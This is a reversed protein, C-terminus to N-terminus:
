TSSGPPIIPLQQAGKLLATFVNLILELYGKLLSSRTIVLRHTLKGKKAKLPIIKIDTRAAVYKKFADYDKAGIEFYGDRHAIANRVFNFARIQDKLIPVSPHLLQLEKIIDSVNERFVMANIRGHDKLLNFFNIMGNEFSTHILLILSKYTFQRYMKKHWSELMRPTLEFFEGNMEEREIQRFDQEEKEVTVGITGILKEIDHLEDMIGYAYGEIGEFADLDREYSQERLETEDIEPINDSGAEGGIM